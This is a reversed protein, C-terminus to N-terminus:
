APFRRVDAWMASHDSHGAERWGHEYGCATAELGRVLLHDLRYGFARNAYM